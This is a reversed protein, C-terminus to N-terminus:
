LFKAPCPKILRVVPLRVACLLFCGLMEFSVVPGHLVYILFCNNSPNLEPYGPYFRLPPIQEMVIRTPDLRSM